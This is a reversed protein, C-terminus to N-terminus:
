QKGLSIEKARELEAQTRKLISKFGKNNPQEKLGEEVIYLLYTLNEIEKEITLKPDEPPENRLRQEQENVQRLDQYNM